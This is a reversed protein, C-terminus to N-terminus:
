FKLCHSTFQLMFSMLLCFAYVSSQWDYRSSKNFYLQCSFSPGVYKLQRCLLCCRKSRRQFIHWSWCPWVYCNTQYIWCSGSINSQLSIGTGITALIQKWLALCDEAESLPPSWWRSESVLTRGRLGVAPVAGSVVVYAREWVWWLHRVLRFGVAMPLMNFAGASEQNHCVTLLCQHVLSSFM